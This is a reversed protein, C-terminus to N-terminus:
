RGTSFGGPKRLGNVTRHKDGDVVVKGGGTENTKSEHRDVNDELSPRDSGTRRKVGDQRKTRGTASYETTHHHSSREGYATRAM